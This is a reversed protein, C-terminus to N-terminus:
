PVVSLIIERVARVQVRNQLVNAASENDEFLRLAPYGLDAAARCAAKISVDTDGIAAIEVSRLILEVQASAEIKTVFPVEYVVREFLRAVVVGPEVEEVIEAGACPDQHGWVEVCATM